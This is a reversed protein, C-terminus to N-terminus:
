PVELDLAIRLADDLARVQEPGLSGRVGLVALKSLTVLNDCNVVSEHTLGQEVDLRVETPLGRIRTTVLAVTVNALFPIAVQRTCVVAPRPGLEPLDVDIVDGRNM